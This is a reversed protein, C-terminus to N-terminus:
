LIVVVVYFYVASAIIVFSMGAFLIAAIKKIKDLMTTSQPTTMRLLWPIKWDLSYTVFGFALLISQLTPAINWATVLYWPLEPPTAGASEYMAYVFSPLIIGLMGAVFWFMLCALSMYLPTRQTWLWSLYKDTFSIEVPAAPARPPLPMPRPPNLMLLKTIFLNCEDHSSKDLTLYDSILAERREPPMPITKLAEEFEEQTLYGPM